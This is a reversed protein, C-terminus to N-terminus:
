KEVIELGVANLWYEFQEYWEPDGLHWGIVEKVKEEKTMSNIEELDGIRELLPEQLCFPLQKIDTIKEM